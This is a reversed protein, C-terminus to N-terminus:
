KSRCLVGDLPLVLNQQFTHDYDSIIASISVNLGQTEGNLWPTFAGIQAAPMESLDEKSIKEPSITIAASSVRYFEEDFPKLSELTMMLGLKRAERMDLLIRDKAAPSTMVKEMNSYTIKKQVGKAYGDHLCDTHYKHYKQTPEHLGRSYRVPTPLLDSIISKRALLYLASTLCDIKEAVETRDAMVTVTLGLKSGGIPMKTPMSLTPWSSILLELMDAFQDASFCQDDNSGPLECHHRMGWQERIMLDNRLVMVLDAMVPVAHRQARIASEYRNQMFLLDSIGWWTAPHERSGLQSLEADVAEDIGFSYPKPHRDEAVYAYTAKVLQRLLAEPHDGYHQRLTSAFMAILLGSVEDDDDPNSYGLATDFINVCFTDDAAATLQSVLGSSYDQAENSVLSHLPDPRHGIQIRALQPLVRGSAILGVDAALRYTEIDEVDKAFILDTCSHRSRSSQTYPFAKRDRTQLLIEGRLWPSGPRYIPMLSIAEDMQMVPYDLARKYSGDSLVDYLQIYNQQEQEATEGWTEIKLDCVVWTFSHEDMLQQYAPAIRTRIGLLRLLADKRRESRVKKVALPHDVDVKFRMRWPTNSGIADVLRPFSMARDEKSPLPEVDIVPRALEDEYETWACPHIIQERLVDMLRRLVTNHLDPDNKTEVVLYCAEYISQISASAHDVHTQFALSLPHASEVLPWASQLRAPDRVFLFHLCVHARPFCQELQSMYDDVRADNVLRPMGHIKLYTRLHDDVVRRAQDNDSIYWNMM